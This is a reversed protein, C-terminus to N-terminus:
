LLREDSVDVEEIVKGRNVVSRFLEGEFGGNSKSAPKEHGRGSLGVEVESHVGVAVTLRGLCTWTSISHTSCVSRKTRQTSSWLEQM